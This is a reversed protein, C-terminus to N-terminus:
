RGEPPPLQKAPPRTQQRASLWVADIRISPHATFIRLTQPGTKHFKLVIPEKDPKGEEVTGSSWGYGSWSALGTFVYANTPATGFFPSKQSMACNQPDLTVMERLWKDGAALSTSRLWLRYEQEASAHFSFLAFSPRNEVHDVVKFPTKAVELSAGGSANRDAVLRWEDGVIKAQSALLVIEEPHLVKPAPELGPGCVAFNGAAVDVSKGGTRVLRVKGETVELRTQPGVEIRLATGLVRAEGHPTAFVMPADAPQKGVQASVVGKSLVVRKGKRDAIERLLTEPGIELRTGDSFAAVASSKAGVCEVGQGALLAQGDSLPLRAAGDLRVVEGQIATVTVVAVRTEVDKAPPAAPKVDPPAEPKKEPAPPPAPVAPPVPSEPSTPIERPKEPERPTEPAPAVPIPAQPAPPPRPPPAVDPGLRAPTEAIPSPDPRVPAPTSALYISLAVLAAAALALPIMWPRPKSTAAIARRGEFARVFASESEEAALRERFSRVFADDHEAGELAQGLLGEFEMERLIRRSTEGGERLAAALRRGNEESITGDRYADILGALEDPTM